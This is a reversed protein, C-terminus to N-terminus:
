TGWRDTDDRGLRRRRRRHNFRNSWTTVWVCPRRRCSHQLSLNSRKLKWARPLQVWKRLKREGSARSNPLDVFFRALWSTASSPQIQASKQYRYRYRHRFHATRYKGPNRKLREPETFDAHSLSSIAIHGFFERRGVAAGKDPNRITSNPETTMAGYAACSKPSMPALTTLASRGPPSSILLGWSTPRAPMRAHARIKQFGVLTLTIEHRAHLSRAPTTPLL